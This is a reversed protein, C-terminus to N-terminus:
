CSVLRMEAADRHRWHIPIRIIRLVVALRFEKMVAGWVRVVNGWTLDIRNMWSLSSNSTLDLAVHNMWSLSNSSTLDLAIRSILSRTRLRAAHWMTAHCGVCATLNVSADRVISADRGVITRRHVNAHCVISSGDLVVGAAWPHGAGRAVGTHVGRTALCLVHSPLRDDSLRHCGRLHGALCSIM